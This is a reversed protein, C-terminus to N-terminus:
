PTLVSSRRDLEDISKRRSRRHRHRQDTRMSCRPRRSLRSRTNELLNMVYLKRFFDAFVNDLRIAGNNDYNTVRWVVATAFFPKNRCLEVFDYVWGLLLEDEPVAGICTEDADQEDSQVANYFPQIYYDAQPDNFSHTLYNFTGAWAIGDEAFLTPLFLTSGSM